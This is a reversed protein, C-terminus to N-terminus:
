TNCKTNSSLDVYSSSPKDQELGYYWSANECATSINSGLQDNFKLVMARGSSQTKNLYLSRPYSVNDLEDSYNTSSGVVYGSAACTLDDFAVYISVDSDIEIISNWYAVATEMVNRRAEGVTSATNDGLANASASSDDYFGTNESEETSSYEITIDAHGLNATLMLGMCSLYIIFQGLKRNLRTSNKHSKAM